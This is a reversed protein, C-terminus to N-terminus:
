DSLLIEKQRLDLAKHKVLHAFDRIVQTCRQIFAAVWERAWTHQQPTLVQSLNAALSFKASRDIQFSALWEHNPRTAKWYNGVVHTGLYQTTFQSLHNLAEVLDKLSIVQTIAPQEVPASSGKTPMEQAPLVAPALTATASSTRSPASAAESEATPSPTSSPNPIARAASERDISKSGNSDVAKSGDTSRYTKGSLTINGALLRFVAIANVLDERLTAKLNKITQVYDADVLGQGILVLLIVSELKYLHVQHGVFQFEFSEFGKPITDIVQLIGQTLAEKQQFNLAQDIGCFYPRSRGDMLAVGAVGPLNLFNQIVEQNM